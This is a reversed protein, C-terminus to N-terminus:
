NAPVPSCPTKPAIAAGQRRPELRKRHPTRIGLGRDSPNKRRMRKTEGLRRPCSV